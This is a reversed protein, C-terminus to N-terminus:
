TFTATPSRTTRQFDRCNEHKPLLVVHKRGREAAAITASTTKGEGPNYAWITLTDRDIFVDFLKGTMAERRADIDIPDAGASFPPACEECWRAARGGADTDFDTRLPERGPDLDHEDRLLDLADNYADFPLKWGDEIDERDCLDADIAVYQLARHPIPDDAPILGRRKAAKWAVFIEQDM